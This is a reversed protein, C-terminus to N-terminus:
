KKDKTIEKILVIILSILSIIFMGFSIILSIAQYTNM